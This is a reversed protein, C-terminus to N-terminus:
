MFTNFSSQLLNLCETKHETIKNHNFSTHDTIKLYEIIQCHCINYCM